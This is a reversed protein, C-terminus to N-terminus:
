ATITVDIDGDHPIRLVHVRRTADALYTRTSTSITARRAVGWSIAITAGARRLVLGDATATVTSNYAVPTGDTFAVTDSPRLVLPIQETAATTARVTRRVSRDTLTLATTVRADPTRYDVRDKGYAAVLNGASDPNGGTPVTGWCGTTTQQAHIVTGAVPHWFFGTGGKVTTSARDGFFAGFYYGPKRVFLYDQNTVSDRRLEWFRRSRLYPLRAIAARKVLAPPLMEPYTAHTIIRPSTDQKALVPVPGPLAAWQARAAAKGERSTYFAALAPVVPIFSTGLTQRDTDGIVDDYDSAATRASVAYYTLWGSGDPERLMVHGFWDAFRRAMAAAVPSATLRFYEALEPLMVEFNYNVDMGTPEYFFGAPSQGHRSLYLTREALRARLAPDSFQTLALASGALGATVQNAYHVPPTWIANGPNLLWGMATRLATTIQTQRQPLVGAQRLNRLTKALYGIGFGTPALGHEDVNYEPFSGDPHQLYLYHGIAADLAALLAKDHFYPNWRRSSAYFWSLTFVHEQVRANTPGSPTRWWGGGFHGYLAPDDTDNIDDVLPALTALYPAFRQEAPAFAHRDPAVPDLDTLPPLAARAPDAILLPSAAAGAAAAFLTRRAVM